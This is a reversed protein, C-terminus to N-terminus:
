DAPLMAETASATMRMAGGLCVKPVVVTATSVLPLPERGARGAPSAPDAVSAAPLVAACALAASVVAGAGAGAALAAGCVVDDSVAAEAGMATGWPGDARAVAEAVSPLGDPAADAESCTTARLSTDWAGGVPTVTDGVVAAVPSTTLACDVPVVAGTCSPTGNSPNALGSRAWVEAGATGRAGSLLAVSVTVAATGAATPAAVVPTCGAGPASLLAGIGL